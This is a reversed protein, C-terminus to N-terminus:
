EEPDPQWLEVPNGEPDTLRAFRGNPYYEPDVEVEIGADELQEVMADLDRVRFNICWNKDPRGFYHSKKPFPAFVTSGAKQQWVPEEEDDPAPQIGFHLEYWASLKQPDEARFFFGGIGTIKEM